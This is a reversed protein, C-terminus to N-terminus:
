PARLAARLASAYEVKMLAEVGDMREELATIDILPRAFWLRLMRKGPPSVCRNLLGFVSLGEKSKGLGMASPHMEEHFIHLAELSAPDVLLHGQLSTEKLAALPLSATPATPDRALAGQQSLISLLAGVACVQLERSLSITTNLVHLRDRPGKLSGNSPMTPLHVAELAARATDLSFLKAREIFVKSTTSFSSSSPSPNEQLNEETAHIPNNRNHEEATHGVTDSGPHQAPPSSSSPPFLPAKLAAVLAPPAKSSVYIIDPMVHLRALQVLRYSSAAAPAATPTPANPAAASTSNIIEPHLPELADDQGELCFM